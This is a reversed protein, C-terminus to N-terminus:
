LGKNWFLFSDSVSESALWDARLFRLLGRGGPLKVEPREVGRFNPFPSGMQRSPGFHFGALIPLPVSKTIPARYTTIVNCSGNMFAALSSYYCNAKYSKWLLCLKYIPKMKTIIVAIIL